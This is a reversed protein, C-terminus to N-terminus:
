GLFLFFVKLVALQPDVRGFFVDLEVAAVVEGDVLEGAFRGFVGEAGGAADM